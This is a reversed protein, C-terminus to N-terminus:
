CNLTKGQVYLIKKVQNLFFILWRQDAGIRNESLPPIQEQCICTNRHWTKM